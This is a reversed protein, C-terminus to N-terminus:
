LSIMDNIQRKRRHRLNHKLPDIQHKQHHDTLEQTREKLVKEIANPANVFARIANLSIAWKQDHLPQNDNYAIIADIARNIESTAQGYRSARDRGIPQEQTPPEPEPPATPTSRDPTPVQYLAASTQLMRQMQEILGRLENVEQRLDQIEESPQSPLPDALPPTNVQAILRDPAPVEEPATAKEPRSAEEAGAEAQGERASPQALHAELWDLLLTLRDAQVRDQPIALHTLITQLRDRDDKWLRLSTRERKRHRPAPLTSEVPISDEPPPAFMQIPEIGAQGLKIGKRKGGQRAIVADSIEYDSYHRSAALSRRLQPNAEDLVSFHGQIAAKFETDNVAPPCYWFTAITAYIARFLHTYLNDKGERKPVLEAFHHDCARAVPQGYLRNVQAATLNAADPLQQRVDALGAIVRDATTLTPIEFTLEVAEGRRKLAGTFWVSWQSAKEFVATSLIESSRRGTLVSLGAAKDSWEASELLRVARTVIADPNDLFQVAENRDAVRGQKQDNIQVYEERSFKIFDLAFHDPGFRQKLVRRTEDMLGQQQTLTKLGRDAWSQRLQQCIAKAQNHGRATDSLQAIKPIYTNALLDDLWARKGM